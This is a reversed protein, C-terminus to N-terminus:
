VLFLFQFNNLYVFIDVAKLIGIYSLVWVLLKKNYHFMEPSGLNDNDRSDVKKKKEQLNM